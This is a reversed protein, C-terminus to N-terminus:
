SLRHHTHVKHWMVFHWSRITEEPALAAETQPYLIHLYLHAESCDFHILLFVKNEENDNVNVTQTYDYVTIIRKVLCQAATM